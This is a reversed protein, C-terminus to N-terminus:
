RHMPRNQVRRIFLVTHRAAGESKCSRTLAADESSTWMTAHM